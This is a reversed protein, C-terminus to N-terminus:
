TLRLRKRTFSILERHRVCIMSTSVGMANSIDRTQMDEHYIMQAVDLHNKPLGQMVDLAKRGAERNMALTEPSSEPSSVPNDTIDVPVSFLHSSEVLRKELEEVSIGLAEAVEATEAPRGHQVQFKTQFREIQKFLHRLPRSMYDQKRLFDLIAGRVRHLSYCQFESDSM